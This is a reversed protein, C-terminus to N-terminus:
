LFLKAFIIVLSINMIFSIVKQNFNKGIIKNDLISNLTKLYKIYIITLIFLGTRIAIGIVGETIAIDPAALILYIFVSIMSILSNLILYYPMKNILFLYITTFISLVQFIFLLSNM